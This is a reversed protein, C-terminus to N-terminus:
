AAVQQPLDLADAHEAARRKQWWRWGLGGITAAVGIIVLAAVATDIWGGTGALPTLADKADALAGGAGAAVVGGGMAADGMQKSPRPKADTIVARPLPGPSSVSIAAVRGHAMALAAREIDDVRRTWGKGFTPWTKLARLFARRRACIAMIVKVRDPAASAALLTAPGIVGDVVLGGLARQLWKAAQAPGSNVAADFVVLDIGAPLDDFRVKDAYLEKYIVLLEANAIHRVTQKAKGARVRWGDYVRQTVGRMTARGPDAPHNAWEGEHHLIRALAAPYNERM